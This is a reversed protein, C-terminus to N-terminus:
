SAAAGRLEDAGAAIAPGGARATLLRRHRRPHGPRHTRPLRSKAKCLYDFGCAGGHRIPDNNGLTIDFLAHPHAYEYGPPVTAANGALGYVRAILPASASTGGVTLWPGGRVSSDYIAINWALASVDAVTRGPCHPDHQWSPKTVYASCGSGSAGGSFFGTDWTKETWGRANSARALQTGGVATVTALNAPFQAPGFGNDGSSAVIVHGPHDYAPANVQTFGTERSGYSNSIVVAGLKVATDEAAALNTFSPSKAEVLLIKCRPCAASVMSVDLTEEVGWGSPNAAPLPSTQGEQNVIQLCGSSTTCPPLHYHARYAALDAALHPTSFADVLAVTADPSNKVPLKYANEISPAGWGKPTTKTPPM